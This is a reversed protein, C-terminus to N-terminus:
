YFRVALVQAEAESRRLARNEDELTELRRRAAEYKARQTEVAVRAGPISVAAASAPQPFTVRALLLFSCTLQGRRPFFVTQLAM